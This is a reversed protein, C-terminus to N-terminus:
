KKEMKSQKDNEIAKEVVEDISMGAGRTPDDAIEGGLLRKAKEVEDDDKVMDPSANNQLELEFDALNKKFATMGGVIKKEVYPYLEKHEMIFQGTESIEQLIDLLYPYFPYDELAINGMRICRAAIRSVTRDFYDKLLIYNDLYWMVDAGVGQAAAQPATGDKVTNQINEDM